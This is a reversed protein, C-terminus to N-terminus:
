ERNIFGKTTGDLWKIGFIRCILLMSWFFLSIIIANLIITIGMLLYFKTLWTVLGLFYDTGSLHQITSAYDPNNLM